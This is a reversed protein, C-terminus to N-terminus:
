GSESGPTRASTACRWAWTRPPTFDIAQFGVRDMIPAIGPDPRHRHRRGGCASTATACRLRSWSSILWPEGQRARFRELLGSIVPISAAPSFEPRRSTPMSHLTPPSATSAHREGRPGCARWAEARDRGHAIIKGLLSDYYPPVRARQSTRTSASATAQPWRAASWGRARPSDHAPDEANIRCEIAYGRAPNARALRLGPAAAIAIQAAVIDVGTVAETVPHEVQIRANM